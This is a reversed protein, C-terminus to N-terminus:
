AKTILATAWVQCGECRGVFGLHETTTAKVSVRDVSVGLIGSLVERMAAIHPALKPRQLAVTIDVPRTRFFIASTEWPWAAWCPTVCRTFPLM